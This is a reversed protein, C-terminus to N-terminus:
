EASSSEHRRPVKRIPPTQEPLAEPVAVKSAQASASSTRSLSFLTELQSHCFFILNADEAPNGEVESIGNYLFSPFVRPNM